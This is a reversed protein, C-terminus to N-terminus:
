SPGKLWSSDVVLQPGTIEARRLAQHLCEALNRETVVATAYAMDSAHLYDFYDSPQWRQRNLFYRVFLVAYSLRLGVYCAPDSLGAENVAYGNVECVTRIRSRLRAPFSSWDRPVDAPIQNLAQELWVRFNDGDELVNNRAADVESFEAVFANRLAPTTLKIHQLVETRMQYWPTGDFENQGRVLITVGIKEFLRALGDLIDRRVSLEALQMGALWLFCNNREVWKALPDAPIEGKALASWANTDLYVADRIRSVANLAITAAKKVNEM